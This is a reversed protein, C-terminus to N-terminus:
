NNAPKIEKIGERIKSTIGVPGIFLCSGRKEYVGIGTISRDFMQQYYRGDCPNYYNVYSFYVIIEKQKIKKTIEKFKSFSILIHKAFDSTDGNLIRVSDITKSKKLKVDIILFTSCNNKLDNIFDLDFNQFVKNFDQSNSQEYSDLYCFSLAFFILITKMCSQNISM